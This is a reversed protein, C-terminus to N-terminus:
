CDQAGGLIGSHLRLTRWRSFVLVSPEVLSVSGSNEYLTLLGACRRPDRLPGQAQRLACDFPGGDVKAM